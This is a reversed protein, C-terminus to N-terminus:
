EDEGDDGLRNAEQAKRVLKIVDPSGADDKEHRKIIRALMDDTWTRLSTPKAETEVPFARERIRSFYQSLIKQVTARAKRAAKWKPNKGDETRGDPIAVEFAKVHKADLGPLIFGLQFAEKVAEFGERTKYLGAVAGAVEVVIGQSSQDGRVYAITLDRLKAEEPNVAVPGAKTPKLVQPAPLKPAPKTAKAKPAKTAKAKTVM